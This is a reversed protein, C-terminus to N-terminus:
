GPEGEGICAAADEPNLTAWEAWDSESDGDLDGNGADSWGSYTDLGYTFSPIVDMRGRNNPDGTHGVHGQVKKLGGSSAVDVTIAEWFQHTAASSTAHCITIKHGGVINDSGGDLPKSALAPAAVAAIFLAATLGIGLRRV